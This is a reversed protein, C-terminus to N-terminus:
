HFYIQLKKGDIERFGQLRDRVVQPDTPGLNLVAPRCFYYSNQSFQIFCMFVSRPLFTSNTMNFLHYM